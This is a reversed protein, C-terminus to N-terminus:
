SEYAGRAPVLASRMRAARRRHALSVLQARQTQLRRRELRDAAPSSARPRGVGAEEAWVGLAERRVPLRSVSPSSQAAPAPQYGSPSVAAIRTGPLGGFAIRELQDKEAKLEAASLANVRAANAEVEAAHDGFITARLADRYRAQEALPLGQIRRMEATQRDYARPGGAAIMALRRKLAGRDAHSLRPAPVFVRTGGGYDHVVGDDRAM